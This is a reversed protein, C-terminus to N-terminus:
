RDRNVLFDTLTEYDKTDFGKSSLKELITKIAKIEEDLRGKAGELGLHTVFTAKYDREDKGTSKGLM